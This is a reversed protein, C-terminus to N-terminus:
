LALTPNIPSHIKKINVTDIMKFVFLISISLLCIIFLYFLFLINRSVVWPGCSVTSQVNLPSTANKTPQSCASHWAEPPIIECHFASVEM